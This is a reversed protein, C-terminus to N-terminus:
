KESKKKLSRKSKAFADKLENFELQLRKFQSIPNFTMVVGDILNSITRYPTIKIQYWQQANSEVEFVKPVRKKIVNEADRVLNKYKLNSVIHHLPRGIDVSILNIIETVKPTFRKVCLENDLFITAIDISDLLNKMDDHAYSLQEIRKQFEMNVTIHEENLSQLEEKSTEIEENTSQLEENLSQLEENNLTLEENSTDLEEIVTHLNEKTYKLERMLGKTYDKLEEFTYTDITPEEISHIPEVDDEFIIFLLDQLAEQEKGLPKVKVNIYKSDGNATILLHPYVVEEQRAIVKHMATELTVKLSQCAMSLINLTVDGVPHMLYQYIAGRSYVIAGEKSVVVSAPFYSDALYKTVYDSLVLSLSHQNKKPTGLKDITDKDMPLKILTPFGTLEMRTSIVNNRKFIKWKRSMSAFLNAHSTATESSGLFLIGDPNLSYHFLLLLKKQALSKLYILLNRCSILDLKTFPPDKMLDQKAFIISERLDRNVRYFQGEQTFFHQLRESTISAAVTSPYIGKRAYDISDSNIDTGFIQMACPQKVQDFYEHCIMAISYVEEGTSCGPIWIRLSGNQKKELLKPLIEQQLFEFSEPERFFKTVSILLEKFLMDIESANNQLYSVYNPLTDIKALHMRRHIRRLLTKHKHLSFDHGTHVHLLLLLPQLLVSNEKDEITHRNAYHLLQAPMKEIPLVHTAQGTDIASKPMSEYKASAVEQVIAVGNKAMIAKLGKSGDSGMGSLIICIAQPGQDEALSQLFFDIPLPKRALDDRGFLHLIGHSISIYTNPPMVYVANPLVKMEQTVPYVAMKTYKQLLEPLMSVHHPSLHSLIVFAMGSNEPMHKFFQEFAELGGASAGIAVIPFKNDRKDSMLYQQTLKM